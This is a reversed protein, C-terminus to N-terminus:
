RLSQRLVTTIWKKRSPLSSTLILKWPTPTNRAFRTSNSNLPPVNIDSIHGYEEELRSWSQTVSQLQYVKMLQPKSLCKLLAEKGLGDKDEWAAIKKRQAVTLEPSHSSSAM